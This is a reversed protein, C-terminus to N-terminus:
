LKGETRESIANELYTKMMEGKNIKEIRLFIMQKRELISGNEKELKKLMQM